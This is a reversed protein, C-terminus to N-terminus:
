KEATIKKKLKQNNLGPDPDPDAILSLHQIQIRIRIFHIRIRLGAQYWSSVLYVSYMDNRVTGVLRFPIYTVVQGTLEPTDTMFYCHQQDPLSVFLGTVRACHYLKLRLTISGDSKPGILTGYVTWM